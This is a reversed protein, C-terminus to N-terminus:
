IRKLSRRATDYDEQRVKIRHLIPGAFQVDTKEGSEVKYELIGESELKEKAKLFAGADRTQYVTKYRLFLKALLKSFM